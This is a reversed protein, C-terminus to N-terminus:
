LDRVGSLHTRISSGVPGPHTLPAMHGVGSLDQLIAHPNTSALLECMTRAELPSREGMVLTTTAPLAPLARDGRGTLDSFGQRVEQYMKWGVARIPDRQADPMRSWSGPRNWYDVFGELWPETGGLQDDFLGSAVMARTKQAAESDPMLEVLAGFIVPEFLWASRARPGLLPVLRLAVLAGYSHALLDVPGDPPLLGLLHHADDSATTTAGRPVAPNPPYGLNDPALAVRSPGVLELYPRWMASFAGTSHIFLATATM